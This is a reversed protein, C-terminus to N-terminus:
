SYSKDKKNPVNLDQSFVVPITEPDSKNICISFKYKLEYIEQWYHSWM